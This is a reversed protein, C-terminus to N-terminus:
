NPASQLGGRHFAAGWIAVPVISAVEFDDVGVIGELMQHASVTTVILSVILSLNLYAIWSFSSRESALARLRHLAQRLLLGYAPASVIMMALGLALPAHDDETGGPAAGALQQLVLVAGTAALVLTAFMLGFVFLRRVSAAHDVDATGDRRRGVARVIAWVILGLVALQVLGSM